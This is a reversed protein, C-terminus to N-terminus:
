GWTFPLRSKPLGMEEGHSGLTVPTPAGEEGKVEVYIRVRTRACVSISVPCVRTSVHVGRNM